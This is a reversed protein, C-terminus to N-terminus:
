GSCDWHGQGLGGRSLTSQVDQTKDVTIHDGSDTFSFRSGNLTVRKAEPAYLTLEAPMCGSVSVTEGQYTVEIPGASREARILDEGLATDKLVSGGYMFVQQLNEDAGRAIVAARGDFEYQGLDHKSDGGEYSILVDEVRHSGDKMEINVLAAAGTDAVVEIEPRTDWASKDLPYLINIFRVSEVPSDPRIQIYPKGDEETTTKFEEPSAIYIGLVQGDEAEGRVWRGEVSVGESFHSVWDYTHNEDASVNDLMVFYGSRIFLVHRTFDRLDDVHSYRRTANAALYNFNDTYATTELYGDMDKMSEHDKQEDLQPRFQGEGDILLTNHYRTEHKGVGEREPALWQGSAYLYFGNSDDHDHGFSLKCDTEVCPPNWPFAAQTFTRNAFRGGYASTKIGFVLDDVDWGTRWIVGEFDQFTVALPLKSPPVAKISPDYYLFEFVYWPVSWVNDFRGDAEIYQQAMWEANGNTYENAVFRLINQPRYEGHDWNFNGYALIHQTTNPLHNYIRWYSYHRLYNHPLLDVGILDRLNSLFPLSLTLMYAQYTMSEHWSGDEIGELFDKGISLQEVAHVVWDQARDDEGWLALGAMGLSSHIIFYHNQVYANTWWNNWEEVKESASAEHLQEAREALSKRVALREEETLRDYLWDYALSSGMVMHALGLGRENNEGWQDWEAYTLLYEVATQCIDSEKDVLCAFAFPILQNGYNRYADLDGDSPASEPLSSDVESSVFSSIPQWIEKHTAGAKKKLTKAEDPGFFLRPHQNIDRKSRAEQTPEVQKSSDEPLTAVAPGCASILLILILGFITFRRVPSLSVM